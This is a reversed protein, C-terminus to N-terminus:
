EIVFQGRRNRAWSRENHGPVAPKEEGYSITTLRNSPVGLDVLFNACAKGAGERANRNLTNDIAEWSGDKLDYILLWRARGLCEDVPSEPHPGKSTVALKM